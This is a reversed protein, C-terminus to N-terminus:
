SNEFNANEKVSTDLEDVIEEIALNKKEMM